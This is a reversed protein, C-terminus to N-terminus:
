KLVDLLVNIKGLENELAQKRDELFEKTFRRKQTNVVEVETDSVKNIEETM